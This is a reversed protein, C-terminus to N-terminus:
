PFRAGQAGSTLAHHLLDSNVIQWYDYDDWDPDRPTVNSLGFVEPLKGGKTGNCVPHLLRINSGVNKGGATLPVWHDIDFKKDLQRGCFACHGEQEEYIEQIERLNIEGSIGRSQARINQKRVQLRLSKDAERPWNAYYANLADGTLAALHGIIGPVRGEAIARDAAVKRIYASGKIRLEARHSERYRVKSALTRERRVDPPAAIPGIHGPPRGNAIAHADRRKKNERAKRANHEERSEWVNDSSCERCICTSVYREAIHGHKCMKGTCYFQLGLAKATKKDIISMMPM